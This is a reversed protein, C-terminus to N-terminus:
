RKKSVFKGHRLWSVTLFVNALAGFVLIAGILAQSFQLTALLVSGFGCFAIAKSLKSSAATKTERFHALSPLARFLVSVFYAAVPVIPAYGLVVLSGLAATMFIADVVPDFVAGFATHANWKRAIM